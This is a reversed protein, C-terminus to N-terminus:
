YFFSKFVVRSFWVSFFCFLRRYRLVVFLYSILRYHPTVLSRERVTFIYYQVVLCPVPFYDRRQLNFANLLVRVTLKFINTNFITRKICVTIVHSYFEYSVSNTNFKYEFIRLTQVVLFGFGLTREGTNVSPAIFRDFVCVREVSTTRLPDPRTSVSFSINAVFVNRLAVLLPTVSRDLRVRGVPTRYRAYIPVTSM